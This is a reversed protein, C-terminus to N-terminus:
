KVGYLDLMKCISTVNMFNEPVIDEPDVEIGFASELEGILQAIGFSDLAGSEFLNAKLLEDDQIETIEKLINIIKENM